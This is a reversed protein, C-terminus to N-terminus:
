FLEVEGTRPLVVPRAPARPVENVKIARVKGEWPIFEVKRPQNGCVDRHGIAIGETAMFRDAFAANKAGIDGLGAIITAGGYIHARLRNRAAGARMMGNILLEMAHIGYRQMDQPSVSQDAGPEGLLFHNMGGIRAVGDHLCVAICSGLLTSIKVNPEAIVSQEGQVISIIRM